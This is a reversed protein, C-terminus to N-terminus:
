EMNGLFVKWIQLTDSGFSKEVKLAQIEISAKREDIFIDGSSSYSKVTQKFELIGFYGFEDQPRLPKLVGISDVRFIVSDYTRSFDTMLFENLKLGKENAEPSLKMEITVDGSVFLESIMQRIQNKLTDDMSHDVYLNLYDTFDALKEQAKVEFARLTKKTLDDSEFESTISDKIKALEVEKSASDDSEPSECSKACFLLYALIAGFVFVYKRM